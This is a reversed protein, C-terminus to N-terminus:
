NQRIMCIVNTIYDFGKKRHYQQKYEDYQLLMGMIFPMFLIIQLVIQIIFM